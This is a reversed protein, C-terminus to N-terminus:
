SNDTSEPLYYLFKKDVRKEDFIQVLGLRQNHLFKDNEPIIFSGGLIPAINILDTMVVLMDGEQLLFEEPFDGTYYKEKNGKLKLGGSERCNGPTLLIYRGSDSFFQSKFAYRHKIDLVEGLEITEWRM